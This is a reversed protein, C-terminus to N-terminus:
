KFIEGKLEKLNGNLYEKASVRKKGSIQLKKIIIDNDLTSVCIDKDITIVGIDKTSKGGISVEYIKVILDNVLAYAGIDSLARVKNYINIAKDNFCIKEDERKIIPSFSCEDNTQKIRKCTNDFVSPLTELLLDRGLISLKNSLTEINDNIDIDISKKAIIDGSDIGKDTFMITIGTEKEGNMIARQIPAGGRYKPLLSAHVNITKYKPHYLIEEPIIQGYACTVIIDCVINNITAIEDKIKYPTLVRINNEIAMKKIPSPTIVRKRGVEKDPQTIVAVVNTEKILMELISTAFLPTGMFIVKKDKM